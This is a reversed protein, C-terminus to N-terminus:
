SEFGCVTTKSYILVIVVTYTRIKKWFSRYMSTNLFFCTICCRLLANLKVPLKKEMCIYPKSYILQTVNYVLSIASSLLQHWPRKVGEMKSLARPDLNSNQPMCFLLKFDHQLTTWLLYLSIYLLSSCTCLLVMITSFVMSWGGLIYLRTLSAQSITARTHLTPLKYEWKIVM